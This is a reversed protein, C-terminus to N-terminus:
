QVGLRKLAVRADSNGQKAAKQYWKIAEQTNKSVGKGGEYCNGLNYQAYAYNQEAAKKYWKVAEYYDKYVGKGDYYCVGLSIQADANNKEAAMKYWKVAETYNQKVGNGYWYCNGLNNQAAAFGQETAKRYWKVAEYYDKYVGKGYYYCFGLSNQAAPNNQEAAKKYWKVAVTYDQEVGKGYEYCYGLNYQAGAYNQEAAKKYWKVAETYDQEVGNGNWYCFGLNNQAAPYNQETAKKYWKVAETYDQKVGNGYAYCYGLNYQAVAYNQEAAKKYWKVAVTYDQEVGKGYEYCYGLNYQADAYNQEAAMKYWKVAATYNKEKYYNSATKTQMWTWGKEAFFETFSTSDTLGSIIAIFIILVFAVITFLLNEHCNDWWREIKTKIKDLKNSFSNSRKKTTTQNATAIRHTAEKQKRRTIVSQLGISILNNSESLINVTRSIYDISNACSRCIITYSGIEFEIYQPVGKRITYRVSGNIWSLYCDSDTEVKVRVKKTSPQIPQIPRIPQTAIKKKNRPKGLSDCIDNILTGNIPHEKINRQNLDSFMLDLGKSPKSDDICYPIIEIPQQDRDANQKIAYMLEKKAYKSAYSNKSALFLLIRSADIATAIVDAFMQGGSIGERDIFYTINNSEFAECIKNATASDLRSYSIFVDYQQAM